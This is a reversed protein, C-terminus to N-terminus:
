PTEGRAILLREYDKPSIMVSRGAKHVAYVLPKAKGKAADIAQRLSPYEERISKGRTRYDIVSFYDAALVIEDEWQERTIPASPLGCPGLTPTM